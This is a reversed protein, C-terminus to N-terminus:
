LTLINNSDNIHNRHSGLKGCTLLAASTSEVKLTQIDALNANGIRPFLITHIESPRLPKINVSFKTWIHLLESTAVPHKFLCYM